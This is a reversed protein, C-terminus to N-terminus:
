FEGLNVQEAVAALARGQQGTEFLDVVSAAGNGASDSLM